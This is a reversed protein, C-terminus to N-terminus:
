RFIAVGRRIADAVLCEIGDNAARVQLERASDRGARDLVPEQVTEIVRDRSSLAQAVASHRRDAFTKRRMPERVGVVDEGAREHLIFDVDAVPREERRQAPIVVLDVRLVIREEDGRDRRALVVRM